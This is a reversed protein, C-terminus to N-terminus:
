LSLGIRWIAMEYHRHREAKTLKGSAVSIIERFIKQGMDRISLGHSLIKGANIDIDDKMKEFTLPNGTVKIIPAIPNGTATGRGTTFIILQAGGAVMGTLSEVDCGPTNMIMLGKKNVREGYDVVDVIKSSGAKYIAGLSKEELTTIGGAINGPTPQGERISGGLLRIQEEYNMIIELIKKKVKESVARKTLIHEAGILETTESLIVTGGKKVILDSAFGVAPNAAIGSTWDSGGCETGVILESLSTTKRRQRQAEESLKKVIKVGKKISKVSGNKDQINFHYVSKGSKSIEDALKEGSVAECGLGVVLAGYVNSNLGLGVLTRFTQNLDKEIQCCGCSHSLAIVGNVKSAIEEAVKNACIVTPIIAIYNRTGYSGDPREYGSFYDM